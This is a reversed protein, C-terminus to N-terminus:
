RGLVRRRSRALVMRGRATVARRPGSNPRQGGPYQATGVRGYENRQRM